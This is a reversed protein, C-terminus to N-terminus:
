TVRKHTPAMLSTPFLSSYSTSLVVRSVATSWRRWGGMGVSCSSGGSLLETGALLFRMPFKTIFLRCVSLTLNLVNLCFACNGRKEQRWKRRSFFHVTFLCKRWEMLSVGLGIVRTLCPFLGEPLHWVSDQPKLWYSDFGLPFKVPLHHCKGQSDQTATMDEGPGATGHPWCRGGVLWCEGKQLKLLCPTKLNSGVAVRWLCPARWTLAIEIGRQPLGSNEPLWLKQCNLCNAWGEKLKWGKPSLWM